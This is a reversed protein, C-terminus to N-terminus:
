DIDEVAGSAFLRHRNGVSRLSPVRYMGTGREGSRGVLPDTGVVVLPVAPGDAGEGRHCTACEREFVVAGPASAPTPKEPALDLLFAALAAVIKRPPRISEGHSTIVLTEIRVALAVPNNRLTAARHLHKQWRIPRSGPDRNSGRRRRRDRGRARPGMRGRNGDGAIVGADLLSNNKGGVLVGDDVSAHCSACTFATALGGPLKVWVAGFRGGSEWMGARDPRRLATPLAPALQVPYNYFASEGITRLAASSWEGDEADTATWRADAAPAGREIDAPVIPSAPPDLEPLVGWESDDRYRALRLRAYANDSRVLSAELSRRRLEPNTAYSRLARATAEPDRAGPELVGPGTEGACSVVLAGAALGAALACSRARLESPLSLGRM